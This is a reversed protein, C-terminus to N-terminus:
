SRRCSLEGVEDGEGNLMDELLVCRVDPEFVDLVDVDMCSAVKTADIQSLPRFCKIGMYM